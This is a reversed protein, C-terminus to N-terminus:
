IDAIMQQIMDGYFATIFGIFFGVAFTLGVSGCSTTLKIGLGEMLALEFVGACGKKIAEAFVNDHIHMQLDLNDKADKRDPGNLASEWIREWAMHGLHIGVAVGAGLAFAHIAKMWWSLGAWASRGNPDVFLVPNNDAYTFYNWGDRTFDESVFRGTWPEYYRARMYVLGSEDDQVHGLDACYRPYPEGSASGDRVIGWADYSRRNSVTFGGSGDRSILAVNNGHGDYIPFYVTESANYPDKAMM